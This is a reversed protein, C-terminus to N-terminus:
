WFDTEDNDEFSPYSGEVSEKEENINDQMGDFRNGATSNSYLVHTGMYVEDCTLARLFKGAVVSRCLRSENSKIFQMVPPYQPKYFIIPKRKIM